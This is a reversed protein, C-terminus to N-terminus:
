RGTLECLLYVLRHLAKAIIQLVHAAHSYITSVVAVTVILLQLTETHTGINDDGCWTAEDGVDRQAVYVEALHTEEDEVLCVAHEVHTERLIDISDCGLQRLSALGDHERSGHWLLNLFQCLRQELIRYLDLECHALRCLFDLLLSVYTVFGLLHGDDLIDELSAVHLTDDYEAAALHLHLLQSSGELLGTDVAAGHM